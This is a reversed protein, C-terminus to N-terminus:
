KSENNNTNNSNISYENSKNIKFVNKPTEKFFYDPNMQMENSTSSDIMGSYEKEIQTLSIEEGECGFVNFYRCEGNKGNAKEFNNNKKNNKQENKEKNLDFLKINKIISKNNKKNGDESKNKIEVNNDEKIDNNNNLERKKSYSSITITNNDSNITNKKPTKPTSKNLKLDKYNPYSKILEININEEKNFIKNISNNKDILNQSNKNSIKLNNFKEKEKEDINLFNNKRNVPKESKTINNRYNLDQKINIKIRNKRIFENLEDRNSFYNDNNIKIAQGNSNVRQFLTNIFNLNRYNNCTNNNNNSSNNNIIRKSKHNVLSKDDKIINYNNNIETNTLENNQIINIKKFFSKKEKGTNPLYNNNQQGYYYQKKKINQVNNVRNLNNLNINLYKDKNINKKYKTKSKNKSKKESSYRLNFNNNEMNESKVINTNNQTQNIKKSINAPRLDKDYSIAYSVKDVKKKHNNKNKEINIKKYYEGKQRIIKNKFENSINNKFYHYNNKINNKVEIMAEYYSKFKDNKDQNFSKIDVIQMRQSYNNTNNINYIYDNNYGGGNINTNQIENTKSQSKFLMNKDNREFENRNTNNKIDFNKENDKNINQEILYEKNDKEKERNKEKDKEIQSIQLHRLIKRLEENTFFIKNFSQQLNLIGIEILSPILDKWRNETYHKLFDRIIKHRLCNELM